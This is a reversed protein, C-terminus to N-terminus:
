RPDKANECSTQLITGDPRRILCDRGKGSDGVGTFKRACKVFNAMVDSDGPAPVAWSMVSSRYGTPAAVFKVTFTTFEALDSVFGNTYETAIPIELADFRDITAYGSRLPKDDFGLQVSQRINPDGFSWDLKQLRVVIRPPYKYLDGVNTQRAGEFVIQITGTTEPLGLRMECTLGNDRLTWEIQKLETIDGARATAMLLLPAAATM